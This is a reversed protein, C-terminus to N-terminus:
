LLAQAAAVIDAPEAMRGPGETRCAQWGQVPGITQYGMERTLTNLNRQTIPHQWMRANMSPALLVKATPPLALATLTVADDALGAALRAILDATAPCIIALQTRTALGVHQSDHHDHAQWVSTVVPQGSLSQFTLPTVFRTASETMAVRVEAGAQALFSVVAAAKYCAIGGGVAVLVNTDALPGHPDPPHDTGSQRDTM